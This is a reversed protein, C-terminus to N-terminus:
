KNSDKVCRVSLRSGGSSYTFVADPNSYSVYFSGCHDTFSGSSYSSILFGASETFDTYNLGHQPHDPDAQYRGYGGPLASFGSKNNGESAENGSDRWLGTGDQLTGSTKLLVGEHPLDSFEQYTPIHWDTPCVGQVGINQAEPANKRAAYWTYLLGYIAENAADNNYPTVNDILTGDAYKTAQLNKAMWINKKIKVWPYVNGEGDQVEGIVGASKLQADTVGAAKIDGVLVSDAIKGLPISAAILEAVSYGDAMRFTINGSKESDGSNTHLSLTWKLTYTEFPDGTFTALPNREDSFSATSANNSVFSWNGGQGRRPRTANLSVTASNLNKEKVEISVTEPLAELGEHCANCVWCILLLVVLNKFNM